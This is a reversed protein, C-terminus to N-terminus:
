TEVVLSWLSKEMMVKEGLDLHPLVRVRRGQAALAELLHVLQEGPLALSLDQSCPGTTESRERYTSAIAVKM